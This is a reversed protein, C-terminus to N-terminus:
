AADGSAVGESGTQSGHSSHRRGTLNKLRQRAGDESPHGYLTQVLRGGDRHGLQTGVDWPALGRELLLTAAAHRLHYPTIHPHGHATWAAAVPRWLYALSGKTLTRGRPTHFVRPSDLRRPLTTLADLAEVPVVVLRPEGNKPAKLNGSSDVTHRVALERETANLDTWHLACLEGPRVGIYGLTLIIARMERGYDGHIDVALNALQHVQPETLADLDKRGRSLPLRLDAFPNAPILGDRHADGFMARATNTVSRPWTQTALRRAFPRDISDLPREGLDGLIRNTAYRHTRRSSAAPRAYDELWRAAWESVTLRDHPVAPRGAAQQEAHRAQRLTPYTGVWQKRKLTPNWIRVGYSGARKVIM